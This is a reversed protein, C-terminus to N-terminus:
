RKSNWRKPEETVCPPAPSDVDGAQLGAPQADGSEYPLADIYADLDARDYLKNGGDVRRPIPLTRLKSPSVGMYHAAARAQMMRPTFEPSAPM